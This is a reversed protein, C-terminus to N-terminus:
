LIEICFFLATTVLAITTDISNDRISSATSAIARNYHQIAITPLTPVLPLYRESAIDAQSTHRMSMVLSNIALTAYMISPQLRTLQPVLETWFRGKLVGVACPSIQSLFTASCQQAVADTSSMLNTSVRPARGEDGQSPSVSSRTRCIQLLDTYGDCKYGGSSCRTCQPRAEDCKM